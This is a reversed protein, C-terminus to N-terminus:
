LDPSFKSILFTIYLLNYNHHYTCSLLYIQIKRSRIHLIHQWRELKTWWGKCFFKPIRSNSSKILITQYKTNCLGTSKAVQEQLKQLCKGIEELSAMEERHSYEQGRGPSNAQRGSEDEVMAAEQLSTNYNIERCSLGCLRIDSGFLLWLM